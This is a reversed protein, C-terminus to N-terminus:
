DRGPSSRTPSGARAADLVFVRARGRLLLRPIGVGSAPGIFVVRLAPPLFELLYRVLAPVDRKAAGEIGEFILSCNTRSDLLADLARDLLHEENASHEGCAPPGLVDCIRRALDAAQEEKRVPIWFLKRATPRCLLASRLAAAQTRDSLLVLVGGDRPSDILCIAENLGIRRTAM